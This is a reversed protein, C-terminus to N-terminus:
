AEGKGGRLLRRPGAESDRVEGGGEDGRPPGNGDADLGFIERYLSASADVDGREVSRKLHHVPHHLIKQVV